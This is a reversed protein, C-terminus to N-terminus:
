FKIHKDIVADLESISANEPLTQIEIAIEQFKRQIFQEDASPKYPVRFLMREQALAESALFAGSWAGIRVGTYLLKAQFFSCGGALSAHLVDCRCRKKAGVTMAHLMTFSQHAGITTPTLVALQPGCHALFALETSLAGRQLTGNGEIQTSIGFIRLSPWIETLVV